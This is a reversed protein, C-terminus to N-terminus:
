IQCEKAYRHFAAYGAPRRPWRLGQARLTPWLGESLPTIVREQMWLPAEGQDVAFHGLEHLVVEDQVQERNGADIYVDPQPLDCFGFLPEGHENKVLYPTIARNTLWVRIVRRRVPKKFWLLPASPPWMRGNM